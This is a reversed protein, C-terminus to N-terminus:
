FTFDHMTEMPVSFAASTEDVTQQQLFLEARSVPRSLHWCSTAVVCGRVCPQTNPFQGTGILSRNSSFKPQTKTKAQKNIKKLECVPYHIEHHCKLLYIAKIREGGARERGVERKM